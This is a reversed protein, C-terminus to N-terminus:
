KKVDPRKNHWDTGKQYEGGLSFLKEESWRPGILQMGVPLDSKTFGCPLALGPLGALSAPITLMDMLYLALPDDSKEGLNFPPIATVPALIVDVKEFAKVFDKIILTRVKAAQEYYKDAYGSSSAYTGLMIRRKAEAGFSERSNGFRIGDYRALNSSAETPAILYYVAVSLKSHPLSVESIQYGRSKFYESAKNVLNKVEQDLGGGMFEKVLGITKVEGEARKRKPSQSTADMKDEGSIKYFYKKVESVNRGILGPCDLSSAFAIVGWRSVAGYTPKIGTANNYSAPMRVSGGTDTGTAIEVLGAAVAAGSGSSSGGPVKSRDWPNQTPGYDSNEGSAGHGWADENLKYKTKLGSAELKKVVTASYQPIYGSLVSSGATTEIGETVFLDKHGLTGAENVKTLTANYDDIRERDYIKKDTRDNKDQSFVNETVFYGNHVAQTQSLAADQSLSEKVNDNRFINETGDLTQYTPTVSATDVQSLQEVYSLVDQLQKAFLKVEEDSLTLKALEAIHRVEKEDINKKDM